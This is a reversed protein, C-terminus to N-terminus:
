NWLQKIIQWSLKGPKRSSISGSEFLHSMKFTRTIRTFTQFFHQSQIVSWIVLHLCTISAVLYHQPLPCFSSELLFCGRCHKMLFGITLHNLIIQTIIIFGFNCSSFDIEAKIVSLLRHPCLWINGGFEERHLFLHGDQCDSKKWHPSLVILVSAWMLLYVPEGVLNKLNTNRLQSVHFFYVQVYVFSARSDALFDVQLDHIFHNCLPFFLGYSLKCFFRPISLPM